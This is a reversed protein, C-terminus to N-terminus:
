CLTVKLTSEKLLEANLGVISGAMAPFMKPVGTKSYSEIDDLTKIDEIHQFIRGKLALKIKPFRSTM